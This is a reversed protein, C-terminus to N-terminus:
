GDESPDGAQPEGSTPEDKLGASPSIWRRVLDPHMDRWDSMAREIGCEPKDMKQRPGYKVNQTSFSTREIGCEPKDM